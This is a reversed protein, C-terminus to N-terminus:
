LTILYTKSRDIVTLENPGLNIVRPAEGQFLPALFQPAHPDIEVVTVTTGAAVVLADSRGHFNTVTRLRDKPTFVVTAECVGSTCLYSPPQCGDMPAAVIRGFSEYISVCADPLEMPKDITPISSGIQRLQIAKELPVERSDPTVRVLVPKLITSENKTVSVMENWPYFGPVDIIV